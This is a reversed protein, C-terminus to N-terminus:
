MQDTSKVRDIFQALLTLRSDCKLQWHIQFFSCHSKVFIFFIEVTLNKQPIKIILDTLCTEFRLVM